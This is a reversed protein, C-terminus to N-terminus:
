TFRLVERDTVLMQIPWDYRNAPVEPVLQQHFAVACTVAHLGPSALFHDYFGAGRGLRRGQRDFALGPVLILDIADPPVPAGTDPELLGYRGTVMGDEFSRCPLAVMSHTDWVVKPALLTKGADWVAQAIPRTDIEGAIPIFIMVSRARAFEPLATVAQAIAASAHAVHHGPMDMLLTQLRTRLHKKAAKVDKDTPETM